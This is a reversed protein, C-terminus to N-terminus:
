KSVQANEWQSGAAFDVFQRVILQTARKSEVMGQHGVKPLWHISSVAPLALQQQSAEAPIAEDEAGVIFLVPHPFEALVHSRDPRQAMAQLGGIIGEPPYRAARHIFKDVTFPNSQAFAPAFLKPFLQKVYLAHGYRRVFDVQKMRAERKDPTDAYPHSHFMGLGALREPVLEALALAVYGGMSHGVVVTREVGRLALVHAVARAYYEISPAPVPASHGFGPFDVTIVRYSEELLDVKFDEWMRSDECFGHLLVVPFGKGEVNYAVERGEFETTKM